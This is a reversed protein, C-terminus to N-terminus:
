RDHSAGNGSSLLLLPSGLRNAEDVWKPDNPFARYHRGDKRCQLMVGVKQSRGPRTFRAVIEAGCVLACYQHNGM